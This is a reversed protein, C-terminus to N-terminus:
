AQMNSSVHKETVYSVEDTSGLVVSVRQHLGQPQIDLINEHANTSAGGAQVILLSMPNAEYMLRLKGAKSPDRSDKPYMFVGSRMLIRHVEAVMSAVWRMNYDKGRKGTKGELLEAVYTQMASQWHRQNSMNIAFEKTSTSIQCNERTLVFENADNLTFVYVGHRLTLVFLTQPGYLAYGSAVQSNGTQLFSDLELVGEHPLISFITGISINVDINSSGDLPDFLVLYQGNANGAVFDDEEESALGAVHSNGQLAEVLMNNAIVDLKKQDEGQVNGSGAEGIIGALDGLRVKSSIAVCTDAVTNMVDILAADIQHASAHEQLFARLNQAM